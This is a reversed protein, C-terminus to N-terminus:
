FKLLCCHSSCFPFSLYCFLVSLFISLVAMKCTFKQHFLNRKHSDLQDLLSKQPCALSFPTLFNDVCLSNLEMITSNLSPRPFVWNLSFFILFKSAFFLSSTFGKCILYLLKFCCHYFIVSLNNVTNRQEKRTTKVKKFIFLSVRSM